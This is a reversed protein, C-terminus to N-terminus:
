TKSSCRAIPTWVVDKGQICETELISTSTRYEVSDRRVAGVYEEGYREFKM